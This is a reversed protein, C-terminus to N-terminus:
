SNPKLKEKLKAVKALYESREVWESDEEPTEVVLAVEEEPVVVPSETVAENEKVQDCSIFIFTLILIFYNLM